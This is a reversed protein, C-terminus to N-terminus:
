LTLASFVNLHLVVPLLGLQVFGMKPFLSALELMDEKKKKKEEHRRTPDPLAQLYKTIALHKLSCYDM